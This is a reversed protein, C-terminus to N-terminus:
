VDVLSEIDDLEARIRSLCVSLTSILEPSIGLNKKIEDIQGCSLFDEPYQVLQEIHEDVVQIRVDDLDHSVLEYAADFNDQFAEKIADFLDADSLDIEINKPATNLQQKLDKIEAKLDEVEQKLDIVMNNFIVECQCYWRWEDTEGSSYLFNAAESAKRMNNPADRHWSYANGLDRVALNMHYAFTRKLTNLAIANNIETQNM